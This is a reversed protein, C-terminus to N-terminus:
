KPLWHRLAFKRSPKSQVHQTPTCGFRTFVTSYLFLMRLPPRLSKKSLQLIPQLFGVASRASIANLPKGVSKCSLNILFHHSQDLASAQFNV